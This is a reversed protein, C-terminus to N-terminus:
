FKKSKPKYSIVTNVQKQPPRFETSNVGFQDLDILENIALKQNSWALEPEPRQELRHTLVSHIRTLREPDTTIFGIPVTISSDQSPQVHFQAVALQEPIILIEMRDQLYEGRFGIGTPIRSGFRRKLEQLDKYDNYPFVGILNGKSTDRESLLSEIKRSFEGLLSGNEGWLPVFSSLWLAVHREDPAWDKSLERIFRELLLRNKELYIPGLIAQTQQTGYGTKKNARDILWSNIDFTNNSVYRLLVTDDVVHCYEELSLGGNPIELSNLFDSIKSELKNTLPRRRLDGLKESSDKIINVKGTATTEIHIDLDIPIQLTRDQECNGVKYLRTKRIDIESKRAHELYARYQRGFAEIIDIPSLNKEAETIPIEPLGYKSKDYSRRSIVTLTLLDFIPSEEKEEYKTLSPLIDPNGKTKSQLMPSPALLGDHTYIALKNTILNEILVECERPTLGFYEQLEGPLLEELALLLRCSFEEIAPLPAEQTWSCSLKYSRAPLLLSIVNGLKRDISPLNDEHEFM